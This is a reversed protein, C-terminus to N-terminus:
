VPKSLADRFESIKMIPELERGEPFDQNLSFGPCRKQVEMKRHKQGM